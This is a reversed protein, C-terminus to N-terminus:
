RQVPRGRRRCVLSLSGLGLLSLSAPEPVITQSFSTQFAPASVPTGGVIDIRSSNYNTSSPFTLTNISTLNSLATGDFLDSHGAVSFHMNGYSTGDLNGNSQFMIQDSIVGGLGTSFYNDAVSVRVGHLTASHGDPTTMTFSGNPDYYSGVVNDGTNPTSSDLTIKISVPSSSEDVGNWEWPTQPSGVADVDMLIGAQTTSVAGLVMSLVAPAAIVVNRVKSSMAIMEIRGRGYSSHTRGGVSSYRHGVAQVEVNGM